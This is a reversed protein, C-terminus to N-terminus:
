CKDGGNQAEVSKLTLNDAPVCGEATRTSLQCIKVV